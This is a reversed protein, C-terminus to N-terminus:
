RPNWGDTGALYKQPTFTLTTRYQASGDAAVTLTAAPGASAPAAAGTSVLAAVALAATGAVGPNM